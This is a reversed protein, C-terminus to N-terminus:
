PLIIEDAPFKRNTLPFDMYLNKNSTHWKKYNTRYNKRANSNINTLPTTTLSNIRKKAYYLIKYIIFINKPGFIKKIREVFETDAAIRVSDYYGIIEIISKRYMLTIEAVRKTSKERIYFSQCAVINQNTDLKSAEEELIKLDYKDDSDLRIVYDGTSKQILINASVYTGSNKENKFLFINEYNNSKLFNDIVEYTNDTSCDDMILLEWNTYTQNIVSNIADLVNSEDNYVSLLVSVKSM